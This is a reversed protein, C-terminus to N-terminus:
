MSLALTARARRLVEDLPNASLLGLLLAYAMNLVAAFITQDLAIKTCISWWEQGGGLFSAVPGELFQIWYHLAPGHLLFGAVCNRACRSLDLWEIRRRGEFVQAMLDGVFYAIGSTCAKTLLPQHAAAEGYEALLDLPLRAVVHVAEVLWNAEMMSSYQYLAILVIVDQSIAIGFALLLVTVIIPLNYKSSPYQQGTEQPVEAFDATSAKHALQKGAFRRPRLSPSVFATPMQRIMDMGLLPGSCSSRPSVFAVGAQRVVDMGLWPGSRSLALYLCFMLSPRTLARRCRPSSHRLAMKNIVSSCLSFHQSSNHVTLSREVSRATLIGHPRARRMAKAHWSQIHKRMCCTAERRMVKCALSPRAVFWVSGM